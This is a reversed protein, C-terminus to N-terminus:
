EPSIGLVWVTKGSSCTRDCHAMVKLWDRALPETPAAAPVGDFWMEKEDETLIGRQPMYTCVQDAGKVEIIRYYFPVVPAPADISLPGSM